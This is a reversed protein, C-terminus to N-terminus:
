WSRAPDIIRTEAAYAYQVLDVRAAQAIRQDRTIPGRCCATKTSSCRYGRKLSDAIKGIAFAVTFNVIASWATSAAYM